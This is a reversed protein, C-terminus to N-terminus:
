LYYMNELSEIDLNDEQRGTIQVAGQPILDKSKRHLSTWQPLLQNRAHVLGDCHQRVGAEVHHGVMHQDLRGPHSFTSGQKRLQRGIQDANAALELYDLLPFLRAAVTAQALRTGLELTDVGVAQIFEFDIGGSGAYCVATLTNSVIQM